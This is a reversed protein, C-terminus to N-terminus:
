GSASLRLCLHENKLDNLSTRNTVGHIDLCALYPLRKRGGLDGALGEVTQGLRVTRNLGQFQDQNLPAQSCTM